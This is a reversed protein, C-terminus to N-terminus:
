YGTLPCCFVVEFGRQPIPIFSSLCGQIHIKSSEFWTASEIDIPQDM